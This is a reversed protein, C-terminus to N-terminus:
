GAGIAEPGAGPGQGCEGEHYGGGPPLPGRPLPHALARRLSPVEQVHAWQAVCPVHVRHKWALMGLVYM